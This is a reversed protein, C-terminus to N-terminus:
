LAEAPATHIHCEDPGKTETDKDNCSEVDHLGTMSNKGDDMLDEALEASKKNCQCFDSSSELLNICFKIVLALWAMGFLIWLSIVNKYWGPYTRDPNMGVVSDGLVNRCQIM